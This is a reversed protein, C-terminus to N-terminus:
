QPNRKSQTFLWGMVCVLSIDFFKDILPKSEAPIKVFMSAAVIFICAAIIMLAIANQIIVKNFKDWM